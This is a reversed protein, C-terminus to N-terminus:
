TNSSAHPKWCWEIVKEGTIPVRIKLPIWVYLRGRGCAKQMLMALNAPTNANAAAGASEETPSTVVIDEMPIYVNNSLFHKQLHRRLEVTKAGDDWDQESMTPFDFLRTALYARAAPWVSWGASAVVPALLALGFLVHKLAGKLKPNM